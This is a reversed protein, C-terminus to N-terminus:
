RIHTHTSWGGFLPKATTATLMKLRKHKKENEKLLKNKIEYQHSWFFFAKYLKQEIIKQSKNQSRGPSTDM